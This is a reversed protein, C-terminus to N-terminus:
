EVLRARILFPSFILPNNPNPNSLASQGTFTITDAIIFTNAEEAESGGSYAVGVTPAYIIGDINQSSGGTFNHSVNTETDRDQYFFIGKYAGSTPASFDVNSQAAIDFSDSPKTNTFFFTVGDGSFNGNGSINIGAGDFIYTGPEFTVNGTTNIQIGGCYVGPSFTRSTNGTINFNQNFDCGAFEPEPLSALPDPQAPVDTIPEPEITCQGSCSVGGVVQVESATLSGGGAVHIASPDESNAFAGCGLSLSAGGAVAIGTSDENLALICSDGSHAFAVARSAATREGEILLSALFLPLPTTVIVEIANEDETFNGSTPPRNLTLTDGGGPDYGNRDAADIAAALAATDLESESPPSEDAQLRRTNVAAAVVAADAMTQTHRKDLHWAAVDLGLAIFGFFIPLLIAVYALIAGDDRIMLHKIARLM